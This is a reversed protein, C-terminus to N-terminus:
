RRYTRRGMFPKELEAFITGANLGREMDYIDKFAQWPVYGMGIPYQGCGYADHERKYCMEGTMPKQMHGEMCSGMRKEMRAEMRNGMRPEIGSECAPCEPMGVPQMNCNKM